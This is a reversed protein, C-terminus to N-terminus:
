EVEIVLASKILRDIDEETIWYGIIALQTVIDLAVGFWPAITLRIEVPGCILM